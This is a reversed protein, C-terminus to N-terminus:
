QKCAALPNEFNDSQDELVEGDICKFDKEFLLFLKRENGLLQEQEPLPLQRFAAIINEPTVEPM